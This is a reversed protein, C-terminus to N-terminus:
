EGSGDPCICIRGGPAGAFGSLLLLAAIATLAAGLGTM